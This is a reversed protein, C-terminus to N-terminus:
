LRQCRLDTVSRSPVEQTKGAGAGAGAPTTAGPRGSLVAADGSAGSALTDLAARYEEAGRDRAELLKDFRAQRDPTLEGGLEQIAGELEICTQSAWMWEPHDEPNYRDLRLCRM